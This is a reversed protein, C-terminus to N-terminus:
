TKVEQSEIYEKAKTYIEELEKFSIAIRDTNDEENVLIKGSNPDYFRVLLNVFSSKGAGSDGVLAISEGKKMAISIGKLASTEGYYLSVDRFEVRNIDGELEKKGSIITPQMDLLEFMRKNAVIADQAQNYLKSIRKIPTYLMFLATAFAFFAGVSMRDEIVEMGGIYIVMGIAVSGLIEMIPSTLANVKVQKLLYKFVDQNEKRFKKSEIEQTSNSKIVEINAFIEGIRSTMSATSEQSLKSYRKMKKALLSLPYLAM